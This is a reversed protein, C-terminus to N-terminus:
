ASGAEKACVAGPDDAFSFGFFIVRLKDIM